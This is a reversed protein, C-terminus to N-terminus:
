CGVPCTHILALARSGQHRLPLLTQLSMSANSMTKQLRPCAQKQKCQNLVGHLCISVPDPLRACALLPLLCTHLCTPLRHIRHRSLLLTYGVPMCGLPAARRPTSVPLRGAHYSSCARSWCWWAGHWLGCCFVRMPRGTASLQRAQEAHGGDMSVHTCVGLGDAWGGMWAVVAGDAAVGAPTTANAGLLREAGASARAKARAGVRRRRWVYRGWRSGARVTAAIEDLQRCLGSTTSNLARGVGLAGPGRLGVDAGQM